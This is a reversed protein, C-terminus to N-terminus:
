SQKYSNLSKAFHPHRASDAYSIVVLVQKATKKGRARDLSRLAVNRASEVLAWYKGRSGAYGHRQDDGIIMGCWGIGTANAACIWSGSDGGTVPRRVLKYFRPWNLQIVNQFCYTQANHQHQYIIGLRGVKLTRNGSSRGTFEVVQGQGINAIQSRLSVQLRDSTSYKWILKSRTIM